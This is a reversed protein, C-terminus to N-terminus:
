LDNKLYSKYYRKYLSQWSQKTREAVDQELLVEARHIIEMDTGDPLEARAIEEYKRLNEDYRDEVYQTYALSINHETDKDYRKYEKFTKNKADYKQGIKICKPFVSDKWYRPMGYFYGGDYYRLKEYLNEIFEPNVIHPNNHRMGEVGANGVYETDECWNEFEEMAYNFEDRPLDFNIEFDNDTTDYLKQKEDYKEIHSFGDIYIPIEKKLKEVEEMLNEKYTKGIGCSALRFSKPILGAVVYPNEFEAPKLCYKSVYKSVSDPKDIPRRKWDVRGYTDEWKAVFFESMDQLSVEDNVFLMVHYHPRLTQPGYESTLFYKFPCNKAYKRKYAIRVRKLWKQIDSRSVVPVKIDEIIREPSLYATFPNETNARLRSLNGNLPMKEIKDLLFLYRDEATADIDIYYIDQNLDEDHIKLRHGKYDGYVAYADTEKYDQTDLKLPVYSLNEDSYTLTLFYCYKWDRFEEKLRMSWHNQYKKVCELCKGCPFSIVKGNDQKITIQALCM